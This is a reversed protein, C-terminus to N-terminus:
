DSETLRVSVAPIRGALQARSRAPTASGTSGSSPRVTVNAAGRSCRHHRGSPVPLQDPSLRASLVAYPNRVGVSNAGTLEALRDPTWGDALAAEVAPMLRDRQAATLRWQPGFADFYRGAAAEARGDV